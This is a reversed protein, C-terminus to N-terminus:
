FSYKSAGVALSHLNRRLWPPMSCRSKSLYVGNQKTFHADDDEKTTTVELIFYRAVKVALARSRCDFHCSRRTARRAASPKCPWLMARLGGTERSSQVTLTSHKVIADEGEYLNRSHTEEINFRM